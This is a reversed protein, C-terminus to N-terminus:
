SQLEMSRLGDAAMYLLTLVCLGGIVTLADVPTLTRLAVPASAILAVCILIANRALMWSGIVSRGRGAFACGCDIGHRGRKLNIGIAAAYIALLAAGLVSAAMRTPPIWLGIAVALELAPLLRAIASSFRESALQYAAVVGVFEQPHRLKHIAAALFLLTLSAQALLTVAPDIM